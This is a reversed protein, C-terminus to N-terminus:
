YVPTKFIFERTLQDVSTCGLQGVVRDLEERLFGLAQRAGAEGDSALGWLFSRGAMAATAGLALAKAVDSGRTFAGDVFVPVRGAVKDVISPLVDIPAPASDQNRGGHNSVVIGDVGHAVALAADEPHLIGKILLRGGWLKRIEDIDKWNLSSDIRTSNTSSKRLMSVGGPYHVMSPAGTTLVYRAMVGLLWRPHLAVDLITQPTYRIPVGFSSRLNYERKAVMSTDVTVVLAECNVARAREILSRMHERDTFVYLQFWLRGGGHEAVREISTVSATSLTFPIGAAAAARAALVDGDHWLMGGVATPSIVLPMAIPKDFLTRELKRKRVDVLVRPQLRIRGLADRNNALAREDESGRDVYEFLGRPLRSRAMIRLDAINFATTM